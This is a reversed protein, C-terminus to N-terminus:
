AKLRSRHQRFRERLRLTVMSLRGTAGITLAPFEYNLFTRKRVNESHQVANRIM